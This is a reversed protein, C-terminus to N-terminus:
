QKIEASSIIGNLIAYVTLGPITKIGLKATINKRHTIVTHVSIYLKDGIEKNTFGLAVLKLIETERESIQSDRNNKKSGTEAYLKFFSALIGSETENSDIITDFYPIQNEPIKEDAIAVLKGRSFTSRLKDLCVIGPNPILKYDIIIILSKSHKYSYIENIETCYEIDSYPNVSSIFEVIGRKIIPNRICLITTPLSM